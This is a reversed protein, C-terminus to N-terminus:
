LFILFITYFSLLNAFFQFISSIRSLFASCISQGDEEQTKKPESGSQLNSPVVKPQEITRTPEQQKDELVMPAVGEQKNKGEIKKDPLKGQENKETTIFVISTNDSALFQMQQIIKVLRDFPWSPLSDKKIIDIANQTQLFNKKLDHLFYKQRYCFLDDDGEDKKLSDFDLAFVKTLRDDLFGDDLNSYLYRIIAHMSKLEENTTKADVNYKVPFKHEEITDALSFKPAFTEGKECVQKIVENDVPCSLAMYNKVYLNSCSARFPFDDLAFQVGQM